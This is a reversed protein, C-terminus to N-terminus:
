KRHANRHRLDPSISRKTKRTSIKQRSSSSRRRKARKRNKLYICSKTAPLHYQDNEIRKTARDLVVTKKILKRETKQNSEKGVLKGKSSM